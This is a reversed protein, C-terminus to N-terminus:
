RPSWTPDNVLLRRLEALCRGRTPGISGVPMGLAQSIAAYDPRDAFAVVRLLERCRPTLRQLNRWLCRYEEQEGLYAAVDPAPDQRDAFAQPEVPFQRQQATRMRVVERRTVTVLWGALAAPTRIEDLHRLFALWVNQMVDSALERDTGGARAVNWVLPMLRDVIGDLAARDGAQAQELLAALEARRAAEASTPQGAGTSVDARETEPGPNV